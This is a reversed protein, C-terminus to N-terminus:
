TSIRLISEERDYTAKITMGEKVNPIKDILTTVGDLRGKINVHGSAKYIVGKYEVNINLGPSIFQSIPSKAGFTFIRYKVESRNLTHEVTLPTAEMKEVRTESSLIRVNGNGDRDVITETIIKEM